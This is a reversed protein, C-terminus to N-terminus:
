AAAPAGGAADARAAERALMARKVALGWHYGGLGGSRRLVRHCPIAWAIPNRGVATGVARVAAPHGIAAAIQSYTTVRGPPVAM